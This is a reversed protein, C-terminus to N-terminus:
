ENDVDNSREIHYVDYWNGCITCYATGVINEMSSSKQAPRVIVCETNKCASCNRTEIVDQTALQADLRERSKISPRPRYELTPTVTFDIM